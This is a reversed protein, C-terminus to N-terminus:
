LWCLLFNRKGISDKDNNTIISLFLSIAYFFHWHFRHTLKWEGAVLHILKFKVKMDIKLNEVNFTGLDCFNRETTLPVIMLASPDLPFLVWSPNMLGDKAYSLAKLKIIYDHMHSLSSRTHFSSLCSRVFLKCMFKFNWV